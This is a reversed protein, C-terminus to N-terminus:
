KNKKIAEHITMCLWLVTVLLSPVKSVNGRTLVCAKAIIALTSPKNPIGANQSATLFCPLNALYETIARCRRIKINLTTLKTSIKPSSFFIFSYPSGLPQIYVHNIAAIRTTAKCPRISRMNATAKMCSQKCHPQAGLYSGTGYFIQKRLICGGFM